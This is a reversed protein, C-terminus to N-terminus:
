KLYIVKKDKIKRDNKLIQYGDCTKDKLLEDKLNKNKHAIVHTYKKFNHKETEKFINKDILYIGKGKCLNNNCLFVINNNDINKESKDMNYSVVIGNIKILHSRINKENIRKINNKKRIKKGASFSNKKNINDPVAAIFHPNKNNLSKNRQRLKIKYEEKEKDDFVFSKKFFDDKEQKIKLNEININNEDNEELIMEKKITINNNNYTINPNTNNNDTNNNVVINVEASKKDENKSNKRKKETYPINENEYTVDHKRKKKLLSGNKNKKNKSNNNNNIIRQNVINEEENKEKKDIDKIEEKNEVDVDIIKENSSHDNTTSSSNINLIEKNNIDNDENQSIFDYLANIINNRSYKKICTRILYISENSNDSVGKNSIQSLTLENIINRFLDRKSIIINKSYNKFFIVCNEKTNEYNTNLILNFFVSENSYSPACAYIESQNM